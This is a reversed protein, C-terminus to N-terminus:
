QERLVTRIRECYVEAKPVSDRGKDKSYSISSWEQRTCRGDETIDMCGDAKARDPRPCIWKM